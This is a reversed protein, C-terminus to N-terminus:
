TYVLHWTKAKNSNQDIYESTVSKKFTKKEQNGPSARLLIIKWVVINTIYRVWQPRTVGYPSMSSPWCQSLYHSTALRCWAMVQVLTSKDETLDWPMWRLANYNSSIFIGISLVLNFIATKVHCGPKGPALSNISVYNPWRFYNGKVFGLIGQQMRTEVVLDLVRKECLVRMRCPCKPTPKISQWAWCAGVKIPWSQDVM